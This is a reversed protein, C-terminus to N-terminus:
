NANGTMSQRIRDGANVLLGAAECDWSTAGKPLTLAVTQGTTINRCTVTIRRPTLGAVAGGVSLGPVFPVTSTYFQGFFEDDESGLVERIEMRDFSADSWVGLFMATDNPANFTFAGVPVGGHKLTVVFTSDVFPAFINPDHEPEVFDFGAAFVPADFIVDLDETASGNAGDSIALENGPLRRTWDGNTVRADGGTGVVFRSAEFTVNGLTISNEVIGQDPLPGTASTAGTAALFAPKNDFTMITAQAYGYMLGFTMTVCLMMARRMRDVTYSSTVQSLPIHCGFEAARSWLTRTRISHTNM